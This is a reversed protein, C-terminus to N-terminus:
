SRVRNTLSVFSMLIFFIQGLFGGGIVVAQKATELHRSIEAGGAYTRLTFLGRVKPYSCNPSKAPGLDQNDLVILPPGQAPRAGTALILARAARIRVHTSRHTYKDRKDGILLRKKADVFTINTLLSLNIRNDDFWKETQLRIPTLHLSFPRFECRTNFKGNSSRECKIAGHGKSFPSSQGREVGSCCFIEKGSPCLLLQSPHYCFPM